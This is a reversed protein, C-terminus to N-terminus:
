IWGTGLSRCIRPTYQVVLGAFMVSRMTGLEVRINLSPSLDATGRPRVSYEILGTVVPALEIIKRAPLPPPEQHLSRILASMKCRGAM